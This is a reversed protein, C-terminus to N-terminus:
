GAAPNRGPAPARAPRGAASRAAPPPPHGPAPRALIGRRGDVTQALRQRQPAARRQRVEAVRWEGLPRDDAQVLQPQRRDLQADLRLQREAVMRAHDSLQLREHALMRHALPQAALEHEREVAVAALRVRQLGVAGRPALSTSSIPRSGPGSSCSRSRRMRACSSPRIISRRGRAAGARAIRTRTSCSTSAPGARRAPTQGRQERRGRARSRRARAVVVPLQGLARCTQVVHPRDRRLAAHDGPHGGERRGVRAGVGHPEGALLVHREQEEVRGLRQEVSCHGRVVEGRRSACDGHSTASTAPACRRTAAGSCATITGNPPWWCSQAATSSPAQNAAEAPDRKLEDTGADIRAAAAAVGAPQEAM